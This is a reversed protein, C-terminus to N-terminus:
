FNVEFIATNEALDIAEIKLTNEGDSLTSTDINIELTGEETFETILNNNIHINVKGVGENDSVKFSLANTSGSLATGEVLSVENIVPIENDVNIIQEKSSTNGAKDTAIIKLTYDKFKEELTKSSYGSLDINIVFPATTDEGVKQNDILAEDKDIGNADEAAIKIEIQNSVELATDEDFNPIGTFSIEVTPPTTDTDIDKTNDNDSSCSFFSLAVVRIFINQYYKLMTARN